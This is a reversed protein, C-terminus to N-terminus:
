QLYFPGGRHPKGALGTKIPIAPGFAAAGVDIFLRKGLPESLRDSTSPSRNQHPFRISM